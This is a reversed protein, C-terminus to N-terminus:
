CIKELKEDKIEYIANVKRHGTQIDRYLEIVVDFKGLIEEDIRLWHVIESLLDRSLALSTVIFGYSDILEKLIRPVDITHLTDVIVYDPDIEKIKEIVESTREEVTRGDFETNIVYINGKFPKFENYATIVGIKWNEPILFTLAEILKTKGARPGGVIIIDEKM